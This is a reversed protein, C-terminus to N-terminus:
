WDADSRLVDNLFVDVQDKAGSAWWKSALAWLWKTNDWGFKGTAWQLFKGVNTMDLTMAGNARAFREAALRAVDGGSYFVRDFAGVRGVAAIEAGEGGVPLSLIGLEWKLVNMERYFGAQERPSLPPPQTTPCNGANYCNNITGTPDTKNVPDNEVYAYLNVQDAERLPDPELFRGIAPDYERAEAYLLAYDADRLYGTFSKNNLNAAPNDITEGFPTYRERWSVAGSADTAAVPSGQGDSHTYTAVGNVLRLEAPGIDIYSTHTGATAQDRYVLSSAHSYVTYVTTGGIVSKVRHLNGDYTYAASTAGEVVTVPQDAADHTFARLGDSATNGSADYAYTRTGGGATDIVQNM